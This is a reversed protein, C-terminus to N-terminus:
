GALRSIEPFDMNRTTNNKLAVNNNCNTPSNGRQSLYNKRSLRNKLPIAFLFTDVSLHMGIKELSKTKAVALGPGSTWNTPKYGSQWFM